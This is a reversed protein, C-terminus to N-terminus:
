GRDKVRDLREIEAVLLAAAKVLNRRNDSMDPDCDPWCWFDEYYGTWIFCIAANTIEFDVWADDKEPTHGRNIQRQRELAIEDLVVGYACKNSINM